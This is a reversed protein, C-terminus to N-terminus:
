AGATLASQLLERREEDRNGRDCFAQAKQKARALRGEFTDGLRRALWWPERVTIHVPPCGEWMWQVGVGSVARKDVSVEVRRPGVANMEVFWRHGSPRNLIEAVRDHADIPIRAMAEERM